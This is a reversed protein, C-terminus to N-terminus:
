RGKVESLNIFYDLVDVAFDFWQSLPIPRALAAGRLEFIGGETKSEGVPETRRGLAGMSELAGGLNGAAAKIEKYHAASLLDDGEVMSSVWKSRSPGIPKKERKAESTWVQGIVPKETDFDEAVFMGVILLISWNKRFFAQEERPLLRFLKAMDTRALLFADTIQKPYTVAQVGQSIYSALLMLFGRVSDSWVAGPRKLLIAPDYQALVEDVATRYSDTQRITTGFLPHLEKAQQPGTEPSFGKGKQPLGLAAVQPLTIGATAQPKAALEIGRPQIVFKRDAANKTVADLTFKKAEQKVEQNPDQKAVQKADQKADKADQKADQKAVQKADKADQKADQKVEQRLLNEGLKTIHAMRLFLDKKGEFNEAVPPDVIFELEAKGEEAEDAEVRFGPERGYVLDKKRLPQPAPRPMASKVDWGLAKEQSEVLWGTEFEFGVARQVVPQAVPAGAEPVAAFPELLGAASRGAVVTDAVADAHREYADGERGVGGALRVGARQQVIHAAEHAATRLDPTGGFVVHDGSAFARANMARATQIAETGLHARVHGIPHHGFSAQIRGLHPLVVAPTRVGDAAASRVEGSSPPGPPGIRPVPQRALEQRLIRRGLSGKWPVPPPPANEGPEGPPLAPVFAHKVRQPGSAEAEQEELGEAAASRERQAPDGV